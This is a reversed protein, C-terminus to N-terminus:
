RGPEEPGAIDKATKQTKQVESVVHGLRLNMNLAMQGWGEGVARQALIRSLAEQQSLTRDRKMLQQCLALAIMAHGYSGTRNRADTVVSPRIQLDKAIGEVLRRRGEPTARAADADLQRADILLQRDNRQYDRLSEACASMSLTLAILVLARIVCGRVSEGTM